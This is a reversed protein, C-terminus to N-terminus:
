AAGEPHTRGRRPTAAEARGQRDRADACPAPHPTDLRTGVADHSSITGCSAERWSADERGGERPRVPVMVGDLRHVHSASLDMGALKGSLAEAERSMRHDLALFARCLRQRRGTTRGVTM